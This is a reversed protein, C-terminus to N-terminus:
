APRAKQAIEVAQRALRTIEDFKGAAILDKKVMWSGGCAFTKPFALYDALNSASVGGTPIFRVGPFPAGVAKLIKLGGMVEAPFFKVVDLGFEMAAMIDTATSTGPTVAYGKQVCYEVVRHSFGPSVIFKAGADVAAKAQEVSVVSGAGVLVDGRAAIAGIAEAAADTRFTIEACPLGGAVLADALASADGADQIAVVPVLKLEGIRALVDDVQSM